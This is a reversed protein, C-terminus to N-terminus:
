LNKIPDDDEDDYKNYKSENNNEKIPNDLYEEMM